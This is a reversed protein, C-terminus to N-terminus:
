LIEVELKGNVAMKDDKIIICALIQEVNKALEAIKEVDQKTDIKNALATAYADALLTNKSAIVVADAQGYSKSSGFTGASTCVGLPSFEPEIKLGIKESLPSNGAYISSILTKEIIIYNDGGNELILEKPNFKDSIKNGIHESFAGAVSAMPGTGAQQSASLMKKIIAPAASDYKIPQHSSLFDNRKKIYNDLIHRLKKLEALAYSDVGETETKRSVACWIDSQQYNIVFSNFREEGMGQRYFRETPIESM